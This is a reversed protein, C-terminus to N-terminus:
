NSNQLIAYIMSGSSHRVAPSTVIISSTGSEHNRRVNVSAIGDRKIECSIDYQRQRASSSLQEITGLNKNWQLAQCNNWQLAQCSNGQLARYNNWRLAQGVTLSSGYKPEKAAGSMNGNCLSVTTGKCNKAQLARYNKWRQAQYRCCGIWITTGDCRRM